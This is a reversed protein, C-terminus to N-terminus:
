WFCFQRFKLISASHPWKGKRSWNVEDLHLGDRLGSTLIKVHEDGVYVLSYGWCDLAASCDTMCEFRSDRKLYKWLLTQSLIIQIERIVKLLWKGLTCFLKESSKWNLWVKSFIMSTKYSIGNCEFVRAIGHMLTVLKSDFYRSGFHGSESFFHRLIELDTLDSPLAYVLSQIQARWQREQTVNGQQIEAASESPSRRSETSLRQVNYARIKQQNSFLLWVRCSTAFM